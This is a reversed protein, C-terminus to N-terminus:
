YTSFSEKNLLYESVDLYLQYEREKMNKNSVSHSINKNAKM